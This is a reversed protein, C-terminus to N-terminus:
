KLKRSTRDGDAGGIGRVAVIAIVAIVTARTAPRWRKDARGVSRRQRMPKM